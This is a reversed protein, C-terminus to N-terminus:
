FSSLSADKEPWSLCCLLFFTVKHCTRELRLTLEPLVGALLKTVKVRGLAKGNCEIYNQKEHLSHYLSFQPTCVLM